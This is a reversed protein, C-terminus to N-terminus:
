APEIVKLADESFGNLISGTLREINWKVIVRSTVDEEPLQELEKEQQECRSVALKNFSLSYLPTGDCDRRHAVVFLRLGNRYDEPYCDSDDDKIEVLAGLPITHQKELNNEKITKGNDEVLEHVMIIGSM